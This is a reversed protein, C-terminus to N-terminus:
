SPLGTVDFRGWFADGTSSARVVFATGTAGSAPLPLMVAWTLGVHERMVLAIRWTWRAGDPLGTADDRVLWTGPELKSLAANSVDSLTGRVTLLSTLPPTIRKRAM